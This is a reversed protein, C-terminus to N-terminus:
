LLFVKVAKAKAGLSFERSSMSQLLNKHFEFSFVVGRLNKGVHYILIGDRLDDLQTVLGKRLAAPDAQHRVDMGAGSTRYPSGHRNLIPHYGVQHTHIDSTPHFSNLQPFFM